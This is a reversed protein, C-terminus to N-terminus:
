WPLNARGYNPALLEPNSALLESFLYEPSRPQVGIPHKFFLALDTRLGWPHQDCSSLFLRTLDLLAQVALPTDLAKWRVQLEGINGFIDRFIVSDWAEKIDGLAPMHRIDIRHKAATLGTMSNLGFAKDHMKTRDVGPIELVKGDRNGLLNTSYWNEIVLGRMALASAITLKLYTQGTSGDRGALQVGAKAAFRNLDRIEMTSSPTFDVFHAGARMAGFMYAYASPVDAPSAHLIDEVTRGSAGSKLPRTPSSLNVVLAQQCEASTLFEEIEGAILDAGDFVSTWTRGEVEDGILTDNNRSTLGLTTMGRFLGADRDPARIDWGGVVIDQARLLKDQNFIELSTLGYRESSPDSAFDTLVRRLMRGNSGNAGVILLASRM